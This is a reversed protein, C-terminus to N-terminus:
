KYWLSLIDSFPLWTFLLIAGSLTLKLDLWHCPQSVDIMPTYSLSLIQFPSLLEGEDILFMITGSHYVTEINCKNTLYLSFGISVVTITLICWVKSGFPRATAFFQDLPKPKLYTFMLAQSHHATLPQLYQFDEHTWITAFFTGDAEKM